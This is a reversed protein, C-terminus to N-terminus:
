EAAAAATEVALQASKPPRGRRHRTVPTEVPAPARRPARRVKPVELKPAPAPAKPAPEEAATLMQGLSILMEGIAKYNVM